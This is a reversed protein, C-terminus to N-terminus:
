FRVIYDIFHKGVVKIMGAVPVAILLGVLGFLKGGIFLSLIIWVPHVGVSKGVIKPSLIASEFQQIVTFAIIVWLAKMPSDMLAFFVGPVIGIVPGFYPIINAIGAVMGVLVAFNVKLILLVVTTLIGVIFAVIMQGRIFGGLVEDFDKAMQLAKKRIGSPIFLIISKKFEEADKLFYFALIPILIISFVKSFVALLTDTVVTLIDMVFHQVRNLNLQLLNRVGDFEPPLNELNKNFKLYANHLFHYAGNSFEPIVDVLGKVERSMKPIITVSLVFIIFSISLYIILVGWLRKIGKKSLYKVLPNLLYALIIAGIFPALIEFLILRLKLLILIFSGIILVLIINLIQKRELNIRKQPEVFNNGIHILYYLIFVILLFLLIQTIFIIFNQFSGGKTIQKISNSITEITTYNMKIVKGKELKFFIFAAM